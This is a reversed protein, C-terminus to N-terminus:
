ILSIINENDRRIYFKGKPMASTTHNPSSQLAKFQTTFILSLSYFMSKPPMFFYGSIEVQSNM